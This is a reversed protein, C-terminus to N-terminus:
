AYLRVSSQKSLVDQVYSILMHLLHVFSQSEHDM